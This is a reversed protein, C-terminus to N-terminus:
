IMADAIAKMSKVVAVAGAAALYTDKGPKNAYRITSVGAADGIEVDRVADGIFVWETPVSGTADMADLLLRPSPKM